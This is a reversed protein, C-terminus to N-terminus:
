FNNFSCYDSIGQKYKEFAYTRIDQNYLDSSLAEACTINRGVLQALTTIAVASKIEDEGKGLLAGITKTTSVKQIEGQTDTYTINLTIVEDEEVLSTSNFLELFFQESNYSFNVSSVDDEDTSIDEAASYFQNLSQPYILQFKVDKIAPDIFRMFNKNFIRDADNPTIMASYTGKGLDTLINLFTDNFDAGIGVGSFYIGELDNITTHQAIIGPNVEGANAMADTLIIVRNSNEPSFQLNAIRYAEAIGSNLDTSGKTTLSAIATKLTNDEPTYIWQEVVTEAASQFTVLSVIDGEKLNDLLQYLGHKVVDLRSKIETETISAYPAKMSGSIDVLLTLAVNPRENKTLTPGSLNIGLAYLSGEYSRGTPIEDVGARYLGMSINFPDSLTLDFHNFEEANLFEYPRAWHSSPAQNKELAAFTLDRSATSGSEDYSFFFTTEKAPVNPADIIPNTTTVDSGRTVPPQNASTDSRNTTSTPSAAGGMGEEACGTIILTTSILFAATFLLTLKHKKM